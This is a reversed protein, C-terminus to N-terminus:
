VGPASRALEKLRPHVERAFMTLNEVTDAHDLTGAQGMMLLHGSPQHYRGQDGSMTIWTGDAQTIEAVPKTMDILDKNDSSHTATEATVSFPRNEKDHGLYRGHVMEFQGHDLRNSAPRPDYLTPWAAVLGVLGLAARPARLREELSEQPM